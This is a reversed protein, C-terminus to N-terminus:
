RKNPSENVCSSGSAITTTITLVRYAAERCNYRVRQVSLRFRLIQRALRVLARVCNWLSNRVRPPLFEPAM